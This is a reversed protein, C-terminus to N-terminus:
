HFFGALGSDMQIIVVVHGLILESKVEMGLKYICDDTPYRAFNNISCTLSLPGSEPCFGGPCSQGVLCDPSRM